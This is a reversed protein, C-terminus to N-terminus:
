WDKGERRLTATVGVAKDKINRMVRNISVIRLWPSMGCGQRLGIELDSFENLEGKICVPVKAGDCVFEAGDEVVKSLDLFM